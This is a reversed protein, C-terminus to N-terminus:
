SSGTSPRCYFNAIEDTVTQQQEESMEPFIPLAIGAPDFKM